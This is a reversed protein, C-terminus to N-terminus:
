RRPKAIQQPVIGVARRGVMGVRAENKQEGRMELGPVIEIRMGLADDFSFHRSRFEGDHIRAKRIGRAHGIVPHWTIWAGFRRHQQCHRHDDKAFIPKVRCEHLVPGVPFLEFDVSKRGPALTEFGQDLRELQVIRSESRLKRLFFASHLRFDYNFRRALDRSGPAAKRRMQPPAAGGAIQASPLRCAGQHEQVYQGTRNSSRASVTQTRPVLKHRLREAIRRGLLTPVLQQVRQLPRQARMFHRGQQRMEELFAAAAELSIERADKIGHPGIRVSKGPNLHQTVLFSEAQM